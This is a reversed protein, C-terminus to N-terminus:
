EATLTYKYTVTLPGSQQAECAVQVTEGSITMPARIALTGDVSKEQSAPAGAWAWSPGWGMMQASLVIKGDNAFLANFSNDPAVVVMWPDAGRAAGAAAVLGIAMVAVSTRVRTSM